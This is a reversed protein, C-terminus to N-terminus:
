TEGRAIILHIGNRLLDKDSPDDAYVFRVYFLAALALFNEPMRPAAHEKAYRYGEDIAAQIAADTHLQNAPESRWHALAPHDLTLPGIM